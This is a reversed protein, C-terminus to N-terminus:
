TTAGKIIAFNISVPEALAGASINKLALYFGGAFLSGVWANYNALYDKMTVVVTDNVSILSNNIQFGAVAGAALSAANMTITGTPKNLTVTTTKSTAQTVTGGAGTGYGLGTPCPVTVNGSADVELRKASSTYDYLVFNGNSAGLGDGLKWTKGASCQIAINAGAGDFVHLRSAPSGGIGVNRSTDIKVADTGDVQLVLPQVVGTGSKSSNLIAASASINYYLVSANAPDTSSFASFGSVASTGNPLIGVITSGNVVSTQFMTRNAVTANSFDGTIRRGNGSFAVDAFTNKGTWTNDTALTFGISAAYSAALTASNGANTESTAALGAKTTAIGAQTTALAVQDQALVVKAAAEDVKAQAQPLITALSAASAAASTLADASQDASSQAMEMMNATNTRLNKLNLEAGQNWTIVPSVLSITKKIVIVKGTAQTASLLVSTGEPQDDSKTGSFTFGLAVPNSVGDADYLTVGITDGNVYNFVIAFPGATGDTPVTTRTYM